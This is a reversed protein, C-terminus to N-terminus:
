KTRMTIALAQIDCPPDVANGIAVLKNMDVFEGKNVKEVMLSILTEQIPKTTNKVMTTIEDITFSLINTMMQPTLFKAYAESLYNNEVVDKDCIYVVGDEIFKRDTTIIGLIDRYLINRKAGFRDFPFVIGQGNHLYVEGDSLSVVLIPKADPIDSTNEVQFDNSLETATGNSAGAKLEKVMSALQELQSKLESNEKTLLEIKNDNEQVVATGTSEVSSAAPAAKAPTTKTTATTRAM